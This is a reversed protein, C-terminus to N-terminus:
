IGIPEWDDHSMGTNNDKLEDLDPVDDPEFHITQQQEFMEIGKKHKRRTRQGYEVAKGFDHRACDEFPERFECRAQESEADDLLRDILEVITCDMVISLRKMRRYREPMVVEITRALIDQINVTENWNGFFPRHVLVARAGKKNRGTLFYVAEYINKETTPDALNFAQSWGELHEFVTMLQELEKSLNHKSDTYRVFGDAMMQLAQYTNIGKSLCIKRFLENFEPSVKTQLLEYGNNNINNENM